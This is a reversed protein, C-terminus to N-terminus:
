QRQKHVGEFGGYVLFDCSGVYSQIFATGEPTPQSFAIKDRSLVVGFALQSRVCDMLKTAVGKRRAIQSTWMMRIGCQAKVSSDKDAMIIGKRLPDRHRLLSSDGQTNSSTANWARDIREAFIAGLIARTTNCVYLLAITPVALLWDPPLGLQEELFAALDKLQANL